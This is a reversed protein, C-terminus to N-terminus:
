GSCAGRQAQQWECLPCLPTGPADAPHESPEGCRVCDAVAQGPMVAQPAPLDGTARYAAVDSDPEPESDM